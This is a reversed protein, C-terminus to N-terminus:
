PRYLKSGFYLAVNAVTAVTLCLLLGSAFAYFGTISAGLYAFCMMAKILSGMMDKDQYPRVEGNERVVYGTYAKTGEEYLGYASMYFGLLGTLPSILQVLSQPPLFLGIELAYKLGDLFCMLWDCVQTAKKAIKEWSAAPAAPIDDRYVHLTRQKLPKLINQVKSVVEVASLIGKMGSIHRRLTSLSPTIPYNFHEMWRITYETLSAYKKVLSSEKLSNCFVKCVRLAFDGADKITELYCEGYSIIFANDIESISM